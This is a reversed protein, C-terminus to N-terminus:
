LSSGKGAVYWGEALFQEMSREQVGEQVRLEDNLFHYSVTRVGDGSGIRDIRIRNGDRDACILGVVLISETAKRIRTEAKLPMFYIISFGVFGAPCL